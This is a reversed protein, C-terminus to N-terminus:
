NRFYPGPTMRSVEKWIMSRCFQYGNFRMMDREQDNSLLNNIARAMEASDNFPVLRGRGDSLLEEAHWFPTSVVASGVGLAYSLTGSLKNKKRILSQTYKQLQIYQVLTELKVFNNHFIIHNEM